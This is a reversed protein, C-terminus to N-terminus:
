KRIQELVKHMRWPLNEIWFDKVYAPMLKGMISAVTKVIDGAGDLKVDMTEIWKPSVRVPKLTVNHDVEDVEFNVCVKVHNAQTAVVGSKGGCYKWPVSIKLPERAVLSVDVRPKGNKCYVRVTGYRELHSLGTLTTEGTTVGPLVENSKSSNNSGRPFIYENPMQALFQEALVEWDEDPIRCKEPISSVLVFMLSVVIAVGQLSAM